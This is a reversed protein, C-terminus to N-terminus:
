EVLGEKAGKRPRGFEMQGFVLGLRSESRENFREGVLLECCHVAFRVLCLDERSLLQKPVESM